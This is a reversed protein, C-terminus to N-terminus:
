IVELENNNATASTAQVVTIGTENEQMNYVVAETEDNSYIINISLVGNEDVSFVTSPKHKLDNFSGSTAVLALMGRIDEETLIIPKNKIFDVKTEDVQDWDAQIQEINRARAVADVIEYTVNGITLTKMLKNAM